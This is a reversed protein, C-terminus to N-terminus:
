QMQVTAREYPFRSDRQEKGTAAVRHVSSSGETAVIPPSTSIFIKLENFKADIYKEIRAAILDQEVHKELASRIFQNLSQGEKDARLVLQRHLKSSIRLLFKGSFQEETIPEPIELGRELSVEFWGLKGDELNRLAEELTDGHASCGPLDSIETVYKIKGDYEKFKDITIPYNLEMYYKIDKM